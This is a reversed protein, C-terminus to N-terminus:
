DSIEFLVLLTKQNKSDNDDSIMLYRNQAVKSLGEFNDIRWGKKSELKALLKSNCVGNNCADLFVKTLAIFGKLSKKDYVRELVLLENENIFELATINGCALFDWSKKEAYLTHYAKDKRKLAVEPATVVGYKESYAVAELAKNENQYRKKDRLDKHIKKEERKVGELSFLEVRPQTEFSIVLSGDVFALGESDRMDKKLDKHKRNKLNYAQKLVLSEIKENEINLAFHFLKGRDSLAYLTGENYALASLETVKIGHLKKFKLEKSDLIHIQMSKVRNKKEPLISYEQMQADLCLLSLLFLLALKPM